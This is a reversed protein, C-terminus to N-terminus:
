AALARSGMVLPSFGEQALGDTVNVSNSLATIIFVSVGIYVLWTLDVPELTGLVAYDIFGELYVAPVHALARRCGAPPLLPSM